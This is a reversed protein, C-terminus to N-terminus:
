EVNTKRERDNDEMMRYKAEEVNKFYGARWLLTAAILIVITVVLNTGFVIIGGLYVQWRM